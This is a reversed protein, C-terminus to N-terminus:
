SPPSQFCDRVRFRLTGSGSGCPDANNPEGPDPDTKPIRIWIQIQLSGCQNPERSGSGSKRPDANTQRRPDPDPDGNLHFTPDQFWNPDAVGCFLVLFRAYQTNLSPNVWRRKIKPQQPARHHIKITGIGRLQALWYSSLFCHQADRVNKHPDPDASGYRQSNSGALAGSRSGVGSRVGKNVSKLFAFFINKKKM